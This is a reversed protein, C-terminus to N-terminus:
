HEIMCKVKSWWTSLLVVSETSLNEPLTNPWQLPMRDGQLCWRSCFPPGKPWFRSGPQQACELWDFFDRADLSLSQYDLLWNKRLGRNPLTDQQPLGLTGALRHFVRSCYSCFRRPTWLWDLLALQDRLINGTQYLFSLVHLTATPWMSHYWWYYKLHLPFFQIM